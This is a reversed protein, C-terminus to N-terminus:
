LLLRATADPVTWLGRAGRCGVPVPLGRIGDFVRGVPGCYWSDNELGRAAAMGRYVATAVIGTPHDSRPPVSLGFTDEIWAADDAGSTKGAHLAVRQGPLSRPLHWTRNDLPKGVYIFAQPWPRWFKFAKM